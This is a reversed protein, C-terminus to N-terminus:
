KSDRSLVMGRWTAGGDHSYFGLIDVGYVTLFPPLGQPWKVGTFWTIEASGGNTIELIFSNTNGSPLANSVTFTLPASITKTFLNGTNLDINGTLMDVKTERVATIAGSMVGGAKPLKDGIQSQLDDTVSEFDVGGWSVDTGDTTLFKGANSTQNPLADQKGDVQVRIENTMEDLLARTIRLEVSEGALRPTPPTGDQGREVTIQDGDLETVKVIELNKETGELNNILTVFTFDNSGLAPLTHGTELTLVTDSITAAQALKGQANNALILGM